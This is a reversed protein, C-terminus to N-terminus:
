RRRDPDVPARTVLSLAHIENGLAPGLIEHVRRHQAIRSLGEFEPAEIEASFHVGDPSTVRVSADPMREAITQRIQEADM